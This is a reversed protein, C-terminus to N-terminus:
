NQQCSYGDAGMLVCSSCCSVILVSRYNRKPTFLNDSINTNENWFCETPTMPTSPQYPSSKGEANNRWCRLSTPYTLNLNDSELQSDKMHVPRSNSCQQLIYAAICCSCHREHQHRYHLHTHTNLIRASRTRSRFNIIQRLFVCSM